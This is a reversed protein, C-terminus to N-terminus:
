AREGIVDCSFLSLVTVPISLVICFRLRPVRVHEERQKNLQANAADRQSIADHLEAEARRREAASAAREEALNQECM